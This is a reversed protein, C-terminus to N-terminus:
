LISAKLYEEVVSKEALLYHYRRVVTLWDHCLYKLTKFRLFYTLAVDNRCPFNGPRSKRDLSVCTNKFSECPKIAIPVM